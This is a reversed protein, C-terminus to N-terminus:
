RRKILWGLLVGVGLALGLARAPQKNMYDKVFESGKAIRARAATSYELAQAQLEEAQDTFSLVEPRIRDIM